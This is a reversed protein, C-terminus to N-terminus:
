LMQICSKVLYMTQESIPQLSEQPSHVALQVTFMKNNVFYNSSDNASYIKLPLIRVPASQMEMGGIGFFNRLSLQSNSFYDLSKDLHIGSPFDTDTGKLTIDTSTNSINNIQYRYSYINPLTSVLSGKKPALIAINYTSPEMVNFQREYTYVSDQITIPEVKYTNYSMGMPMKKNKTSQNLVVELRDIEYTLGASLKAVLANDAVDFVASPLQHREFIFNYTVGNTPLLEFPSWLQQLGPGILANKMGLDSFTIVATDDANVTVFEMRVGRSTIPLRIMDNSYFKDGIYREDTIYTIAKENIMAQSTPSGGVAPYSQPNVVQVALDFVADLNAKKDLTILGVSQLKELTPKDIKITNTSLTIDAADISNTVVMPTMELRVFEVVDIANWYWAYKFVILAPVAATFSTTAQIENQMEFLHGSALRFVMKCHRGVAISAATLEAQTLEAKLKLVQFQPITTTPVIDPLASITEFLSAGFIKPRNAVQTKPIQASEFSQNDNMELTDLLTTSAPFVETSKVIVVKFLDVRNETEFSMELGQTESLWFNTSRCLEFIDQLPIQVEIYDKHLSSLTKTLSEGRKSALALGNLLNSSALREKNTTLQFMSQSIINSFPISELIQGNGRKLIASKIMCAPSYTHDEHGFSLCMDKATLKALDASTITEGNKSKIRMRMALYSQSLDTQMNDSPIRINARNYTPSYQQNELSRFKITRQVNISM